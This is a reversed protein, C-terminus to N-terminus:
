HNSPRCCWEHGVTWSSKLERTLRGLVASKHSGLAESALRMVGDVLKNTQEMAQEFSVNPSFYAHFVELQAM